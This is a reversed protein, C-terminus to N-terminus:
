TRLAELVTAAGTTAVTRGFYVDTTMSTNAHRLQDVAARPSLGAQDMAEGVKM